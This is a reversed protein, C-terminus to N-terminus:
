LESAIGCCIEIYIMMISTFVGGKICLNVDCSNCGFGTNKSRKLRAVPRSNSSIEGLPSRQANGRRLRCQQREGQQCERPHKAGWVCRRRKPRKEPRHELGHM